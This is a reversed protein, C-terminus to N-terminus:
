SLMSLLLCTMSSFKSHGRLCLHKRYALRPHTVLGEPTFINVSDQDGPLKSGTGASYHQRLRFAHLSPAHLRAHLSRSRAACVTPHPRPWLLLVQLAIQIFALGVHAGQKAINEILRRKDFLKFETFVPLSMDDLQVLHLDNPHGVGM